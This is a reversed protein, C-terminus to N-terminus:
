SLPGRPVRFVYPSYSLVRLVLGRHLVHQSVFLLRTHFDGLREVVGIMFLGKLM